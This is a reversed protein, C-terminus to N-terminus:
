QPFVYSMEFIVLLEATQQNGFGEASYLSQHNASKMRNKLWMYEAILNWSAAPKPAVSLNGRVPNKLSDKLIQWRRVHRETVAYKKALPSSVPLRKRVTPSELCLM